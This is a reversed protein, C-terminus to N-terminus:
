GSVEHHAHLMSMVHDANVSPMKMHAWYVPSARNGLDPRAVRKKSFITSTNMHSAPSARNGLDQNKRGLDRYSPHFNEWIFVEAGHGHHFIKSLIAESECCLPLFPM